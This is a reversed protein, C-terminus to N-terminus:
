QILTKIRGRSTDLTDQPLFESSILVLPPGVETTDCTFDLKGQDQYCEYLKNEHIWNLKPGSDLKATNHAM